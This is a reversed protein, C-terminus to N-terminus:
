GFIAALDPGAIKQNKVFFSYIENAAVEVSKPSGDKSVNASIRTMMIKLALTQWPRILRGTAVERWRPHSVPPVSTLEAM